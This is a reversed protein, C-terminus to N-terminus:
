FSERLGVREQVSHMKEAWWHRRLYSKLQRAVEEDSPIFGLEQRRLLNSERRGVSALLQNTKQQETIRFGALLYPLRHFRAGAKSFRLILEWDMAFQFQENVKGGVQEWLTRRWFMTEQPIYDAWQLLQQDHAPLIWRNIVQDESDILLRHGYVVDVEPHRSFFQGVRELAQPLLIDDSNLWGMVEGDVRRFGLNIAHSQGRDKLSEWSALHDSYNRIVELSSDTSGGDQVHYVLNPYGQNVVSRITRELYQGCNFNPTVLAIRPLTEPAFNRMAPPTSFRINTRSPRAPHQQLRFLKTSRFEKLRRSLWNPQKSQLQWKRSRKPRCLRTTFESGYYRARLWFEAFRSSATGQFAQM